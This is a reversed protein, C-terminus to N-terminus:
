SLFPKCICALALILDSLQKGHFSSMKWTVVFVSNITRYVQKVAQDKMESPLCDSMKEMPTYRDKSLLYFLALLYTTVGVAFQGVVVSKGVVLKLVNWLANFGLQVNQGGRHVYASILSLDVFNSAASVLSLDDGMRLGTQMNDYAGSLDGSLALRVVTEIPLEVYSEGGVTTSNSSNYWLREISAEIETFNFSPGFFSVGRDAIYQRTYSYTSNIGSEVLLSVVDGSPLYSQLTESRNVADVAYTRVSSVMTVGERHVNLAIITGSSVAVLMLGVILLVAVFGHAQREAVSVLWADARLYLIRVRHFVTSFWGPLLTSYVSVGKAAAWDWGAQLNPEFYAVLWKLGLALCVATIILVSWVADFWVFVCSLLLSFLHWDMHYWKRLRADAYECLSESGNGGGTWMCDVEGVAPVAVVAGGIPLAEIPLM